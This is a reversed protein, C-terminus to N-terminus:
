RMVKRAKYAINDKSGKKKLTNESLGCKVSAADNWKLINKTAEM